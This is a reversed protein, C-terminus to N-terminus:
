KGFKYTTMILERDMNRVNDNDHDSFLQYSSNTGLPYIKAATADVLFWSNDVYAYGWDHGKGNSRGGGTVYPINLERLVLELAQQYGSCKCQKLVLCEYAGQGKGDYKSARRVYVTAWALKRRDSDNGEERVKNLTRNVIEDVKEKTLLYKELTFGLSESNYVLEYTKNESDKNEFKYPFVSLVWIVDTFFSREDLMREELKFKAYGYDEYTHMNETTITVESEKTEETANFFKNKFEKEKGYYYDLNILMQYSFVHAERNEIYAKYQKSNKLVDIYEVPVEVQDFILKDIEEKEISKVSILEKEKFDINKFNDKHEIHIIDEQTRVSLGFASALTSLQVYVKGNKVVTAVSAKITKTEGNETVEIIKSKAKVSITKGFRSFEASKDEENYKYVGYYANSFAELPMMIRKGKKYAAGSEESFEVVRGCLFMKMYEYESFEECTVTPEKLNYASAKKAPMAGSFLITSALTLPLVKGIVGKKIYQKIHNLDTNM